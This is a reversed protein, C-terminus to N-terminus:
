PKAQLLSFRQEPQCDRPEQVTGWGCLTIWAETFGDDPLPAPSVNVNENVSLKPADSISANFMMKLLEDPVTFLQTTEILGCFPRMASNASELLM